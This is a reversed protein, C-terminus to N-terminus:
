SYIFFYAKLLLNTNSLHDHNAFCVMFDSVSTAQNQKGEEENRSAYSQSDDNGDNDDNDNDSEEDNVLDFHSFYQLLEEDNSPSLNMEFNTSSFNGFENQSEAGLVNHLMSLFVKPSIKTPDFYQNTSEDSNKTPNRTTQGTATSIGEIESKTNVFSELSDMMTNMEKLDTTTHGMEDGVKLKSEQHVNKKTRDQSMGTMESMKAELEDISSFDIWSDSDVDEM